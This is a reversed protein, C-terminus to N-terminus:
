PDIQLAQMLKAETVHTARRREHVIMENTALTLYIVKLGKEGSKLLPMLDADRLQLDKHDVVIVDFPRGELLAMGEEWDVAEVVEAAPQHALLRLLIERFLAHNSILLIRYVSKLFV